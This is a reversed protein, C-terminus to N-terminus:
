LVQHISTTLRGFASRHSPEFISYLPCYASISMWCCILLRHKLSRRQMLASIYCLSSTKVAWDNDFRIIKLVSLTLVILIVTIMLLSYQNIMNDYQDLGSMAVKSIKLWTMVVCILM